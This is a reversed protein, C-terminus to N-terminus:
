PTPWVQLPIHCLCQTGPQLTHGWINAETPAGPCFSTKTNCESCHLTPCWGGGMFVSTSVLKLLHRSNLLAKMCLEQTAERSQFLVEREVETAILENKNSVHFFQDPQKEALVFFHIWHKRRAATLFNWGEFTGEPCSVVFTNRHGTRSGKQETTRTIIWSIWVSPLGV